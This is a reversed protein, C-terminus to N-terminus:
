YDVHLMDGETVRIYIISVVSYRIYRNSRYMIIGMYIRRWLVRNYIGRYINRSGGIYIISVVWGVLWWGIGVWGYIGCQEVSSGRYIGGTSGGEVSGGVEVVEEGGM